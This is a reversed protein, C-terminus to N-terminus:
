RLPETQKLEGRTALDTPCCKLAPPGALSVVCCLASLLFPRYLMWGDMVVRLLLLVAVAVVVWLTYVGVTVARAGGGREGGQTTGEDIM